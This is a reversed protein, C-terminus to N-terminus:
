EEDVRRVYEETETNVEVIDGQKIFLPANIIAGTELVVQKTGSEARNGKIGPPAEKVKLRIKIPLSVNIIKGEFNLGEIIQNPKLFKAAKGIQEKPLDFRKVSDSEECFFYRSKHSYSSDQTAPYGKPCTRKTHSFLFKAKFKSIEAEEFADSPHFTRSILNGTIFNKLKTQLVSHGRGKFLLSSEVIECPQDELVIIIGKKLESFTIM